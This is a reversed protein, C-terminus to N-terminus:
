LNPISYSKDALWMEDRYDKETVFRTSGDVFAYNSGDGYAKLDLRDKQNGHPPELFDMYFHRSGRKQMGLLLTEAPREIRSLPIEAGKNDFGGLDNFGNMLYSTNNTGNSLPDSNRTVFDDQTGPAAFVKVDKLYTALLKPWRDGRRQAPSPLKMDHESAYLVFAAGLQRMNSLGAAREGNRRMTGIAPFILAALVAVIAIVVLLEILTFARRRSAATLHHIPYHSNMTDSALLWGVLGSGPMENPTDKLIFAFSQHHM